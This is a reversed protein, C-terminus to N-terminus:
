PLTCHVIELCMAFVVKWVLEFLEEGLRERQLMEGAGEGNSERGLVQM